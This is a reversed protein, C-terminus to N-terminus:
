SFTKKENLSYRPTKTYLIEPDQLIGKQSPKRVINMLYFTRVLLIESSRQTLNSHIFFRNKWVIM